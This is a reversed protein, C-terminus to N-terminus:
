LGVAKAIIGAVIDLCEGRIGASPPRHKLLRKGSKNRSEFEALREVQKPTLAPRASPALPLERLDRDENRPKVQLSGTSRRKM